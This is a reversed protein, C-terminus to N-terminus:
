RRQASTSRGPADIAAVSGHELRVILDAHAITSHRHAITVITRGEQALADIAGLVAAETADDMASTAEDLFLIPTQKYIARAIALRQRQGGSLRVGREGVHTDYGDPLGSVFAHLQARRSADVVREMDISEAAVSFAINRAISADALFIAQAVHAISRQWRRVNERTLAVGDIRISGRDPEILGMILDALTSKGSGTTGVLALRCGRPIEFSLNSVAPSRRAPYTFTVREISIRDRFPLPELEAANELRHDFPLRLLELVQGLVSEHASASSWGVYVQQLLPLLRQSGLAFAGLIPVAAAIGNTRTSIVVAIIAILVMGCAEVVFRPATAMFSSSAYAQSFRKDIRRFEDLYVAQSSDILIDRIGGLSEQVIKVRANYTEGLIASNEVLRRRTVASVFLYVVALGAAGALATFPDVAVLAAIIFIAIFAATAGQMVQQLVGTVLVPVKELAAILSSTNGGVHFMYPQLLVRQQIDVAFDHGLGYSFRQTTWVITLRVIAATLAVLAFLATAVLLREYPTTAGVADFVLRLGSLHQLSDPRALITLFPLVAGITAIESLAGATMLVLLLWAQTRRRPSMARYLERLGSWWATGTPQPVGKELKAGM